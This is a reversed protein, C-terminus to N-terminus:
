ILLEITTNSFEEQSFLAKIKKSYRLDLNENKYNDRLFRYLKLFDPNLGEYVMHVISVMQSEKNFGYKLDKINDIWYALEVKYLHEPTPIGKLIPNKTKGSIFLNKYMEFHMPEPWLENNAVKDKISDWLTGLEHGSFKKNFKICCSKLSLEIIHSFIWPLSQNEKEPTTKALLAIIFFDDALEAFAENITKVGKDMFKEVDISALIEVQDIYEM